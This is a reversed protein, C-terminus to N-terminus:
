YNRTIKRAIAKDFRGPHGCLSPITTVKGWWGKAKLMPELQFQFERFTMGEKLASDVMERIDTLIDMKMAKAVTFVQANNILLQERWDWTIEFGKEEFFKIADEPPLAFPETPFDPM